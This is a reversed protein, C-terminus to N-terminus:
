AKPRRQGFTDGGIGQVPLGRRPDVLTAGSQASCFLM